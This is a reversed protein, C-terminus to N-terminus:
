KKYGRPPPYDTYKLLIHMEKDSVVGEEFMKKQIKRLKLRVNQIRELTLPKEETM